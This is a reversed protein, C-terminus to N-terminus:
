GGISAALAAISETLRLVAETSIELEARLAHMETRLDVPPFADDPEHIADDPAVGHARGGEIKRKVRFAERVPILWEEEGATNENHDITEAQTGESM